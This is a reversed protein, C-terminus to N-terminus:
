PESIERWRFGFNIGLNVSQAEVAVCRDERIVIPSDFIPYPGASGIRQYEYGASGVVGGIDTGALVLASPLGDNRRDLWIGAGSIPAWTAAAAAHATETVSINVATGTAVTIRELVIIVGSGLPNVLAAGSLEGAVAAVIFGFAARRDKPGKFETQTTLDELLVVPAVINDLTLVPSRQGKIELGRTLRQALDGRQILNETPM